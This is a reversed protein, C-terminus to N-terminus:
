RAIRRCARCRPPPRCVRCPAFGVRAPAPVAPRARDAALLQYDAADDLLHGPAISRLRCRHDHPQLRYAAAVGRRHRADGGARGRGDRARPPHSPARTRTAGRARGGQAGHDDGEHAHASDARARVGCRDGDGRCVYLDARAPRRRRESTRPLSEPYARLLAQVGVRALLLGLAGGALSLMVGETMFQRLLRGRGAGLATRM